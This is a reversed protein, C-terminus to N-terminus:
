RHRPDPGRRVHHSRGALQSGGSWAQVLFKQVNQLAGAGAPLAAQWVLFLADLRRVPHEIRRAAHLVSGVADALRSTRGREVMARVAWASAGVVQYPDTAQAAARLAEDLTRDLTAEPGYRAVWALAQSRFWPDKVQRALELASPDGKAALRTARDRAVTSSAM